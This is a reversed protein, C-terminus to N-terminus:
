TMPALALLNDEEVRDELRGGLVRDDGLIQLARHVLACPADIAVLGGLDDTAGRLVDLRTASLLNEVGRFIM